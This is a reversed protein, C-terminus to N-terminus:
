RKELLVRRITPIFRRSAWTEMGGALEMRLTGSVTFDYRIVKDLNIIEFRSIRLFRNMDLVDELSQLTRRMYWVGDETIFEVQKGNMSILIIDATRLRRLMGNKDFVPLTETFRGSLMDMLATVEDNQEAASILVDVHDLSPDPRFRINIKKLHM